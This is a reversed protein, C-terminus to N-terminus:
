TAAPRLRSLDYGYWRLIEHAAALRDAGIQGRDMIWVRTGGPDGLVATRGSTDLWYVWLPAGPTILRGAPDYHYSVPEAGEIEIAQASIRVLAGPTIGAGQAVTWNGTLQAQAVNAQSAVPATPNRLPIAGYPAPGKAGCGALLALALLLRRM